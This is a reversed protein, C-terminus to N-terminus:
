RTGTQVPLREVFSKHSTLLRWRGRDNVIVLSYVGRERTTRGQADVATYIGWGTMVAADPALVQIQRREWRFDLAQLVDYSAGIVDAIRSQPIRLGDSIFAAYPGPTFLWALAQADRRSIAAAMADAISDAALRVVEREADLDRSPGGRGLTACGPLLALCLGVALIWRVGSSRPM